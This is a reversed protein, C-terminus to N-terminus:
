SLVFSSLVFSSLTFSAELQFSVPKFIRPSLKSLAFLCSSNGLEPCLFILLRSVLSFLPGKLQSTFRARGSPRNQNISYCARCCRGPMNKSVTRLGLTSTGAKQFISTMHLGLQM